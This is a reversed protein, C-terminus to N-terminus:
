STAVERRRVVPPGFRLNLATLYARHLGEAQRALTFESRVRAAAATGLRRRLEPEDSLRVIWSAIARQDGPAVLIGTRLHEIQEPVGGVSTAIVPLGAAMAELTALPFGESRSALVFVDWGPMVAAAPRSGLMAIRQEEEEDLLQSIEADLGPDRHLHSAGVHEFRLDPREELASRAASLFIDTGKTRSVTAVTGVTFPRGDQATPVFPPTGNHVTLVPTDGARARLISSAAESVGVLVEAVQAAARVTGARKAGPPPIEHVQLVVPIGRSRAFLAEPLSLLTNAHVVHPRTSELVSALARFYSPTRVARTLIGPTERWGRRSFALPRDHTHVVALEASAAEVLPGTGPVWGSPTWGYRALDPLARLVSTGAGLLEAEHFLVLLRLLGPPPVARRRGGRPRRVAIM